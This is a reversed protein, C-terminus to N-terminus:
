ALSAYSRPAPPRTDPRSRPRGGSEGRCAARQHSAAARSAVAEWRSAPPSRPPAPFRGRRGGRRGRGRRTGCAAHRGTACAAYAGGGTPRVPARPACRPPSPASSTRLRVRAVVQGEHRVPEERADEAARRAVLQVVLVAVDARRRRASSPRASSPRPPHPPRREARREPRPPPAAAPPGAREAASRLGQEASAQFWPPAGGLGLEELGRAGGSFSERASGRPGAHPSIRLRRGDATM